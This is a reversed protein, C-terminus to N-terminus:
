SRMACWTRISWTCFIGRGTSWRGAVVQASSPCRCSRTPVAWLVTVQVPALLARTDIAQRDGDLLTAQVAQLAETVGDLWKYRLLDEVLRRTGLEPDSFLKVM